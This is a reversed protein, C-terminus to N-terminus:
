GEKTLSIVLWYLTRKLCLVGMIIGDSWNGSPWVFFVRLCHDCSGQIVLHLDPFPMIFSSRCHFRSLWWSLTNNISSTCVERNSCGMIQHEYEERATSSASYIFDTSAPGTSAHVKAKEGSEWYRAVSSMHPFHVNQHPFHSFPTNKPCVSFENKTNCITRIPLKQGTSSYTSDDTNKIDCSPFKQM